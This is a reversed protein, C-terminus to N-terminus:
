AAAPAVVSSQVRVAYTLRARRKKAVFAIFQEVEGADIM